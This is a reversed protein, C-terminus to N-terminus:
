DVYDAIAVKAASIFLDFKRGVEAYYTRNCLTCSQFKCYHCLSHAVALMRLDTRVHTCGLKDLPLLGVPQSCLEGIIRWLIPRELYHALSDRTNRSASVPGMVSCGLVCQMGSESHYRHSTCWSNALTKIVVFAANPRLAGLCVGFVMLPWLWFLLPGCPPPRRRHDGIANQPKPRPKNQQSHGSM